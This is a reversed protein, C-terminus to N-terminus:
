AFTQSLRQAVDQGATIRAIIAGLCWASIILAVRSIFEFSGTAATLLDAFNGVLYSSWWVALLPHAHSGDGSSGVLSVDWAERMAKYPMYFSAIPVFFWGVSWGPTFELGGYGGDVLNKHVRYIWFSIAMASAYFAALGGYELLYFGDVYAQSPLAKLSILGFMDAFSVIARAFSFAMFVYIGIMAVRARAQLSALGNAIADQDM